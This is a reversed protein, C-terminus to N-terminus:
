SGAENDTTRLLHFGLEGSNWDIAAHLLMAPWLSGTLSVVIAFILGIIATKPVQTIGLYVHGIGFLASALFVALLPGMWALFYWTLFGRFFIEECIGATLSVAWFLKRESPTHPLLAEGYVLAKRVRARRDSRRLLARRQFVLLVILALVYFFGLVLRLPTDGTLHLASWPRHLVVWLFLLAVTPIWEGVLLRRYHDRRATRPDAALRALYRPWSWKWEVLPLILLLAFLLHDFVTRNTLPTIM